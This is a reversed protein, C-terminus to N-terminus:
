LWSEEKKDPHEALQADANSGVFSLFNVGYLWARDEAVVCCRHM